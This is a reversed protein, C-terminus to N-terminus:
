ISLKLEDKVQLLSQLCSSDYGQPLNERLVKILESYRDLMPTIVSILLSYGSAPIVLDFLEKTNIPLLLMDKYKIVYLQYLWGDYLGGTKFPAGQISLLVDKLVEPQEVDTFVTEASDLINRFYLCSYILNKHLPVKTIAGNTDTIIATFNSFPGEQLEQALM